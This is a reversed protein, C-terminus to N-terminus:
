RAKREELWSEIASPCWRVTARGIRMPAPFDRAEVMREIKRTSVKLRRAVEVITLLAPPASAPAPQVQVIEKLREVLREELQDFREALTPMVTDRVLRAIHEDLNM